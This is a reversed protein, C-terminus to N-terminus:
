TENGARPESAPTVVPCPLPDPKAAKERNERALWWRLGEEVARTVNSSREKVASLLAPDLRLAVLKGPNGRPM